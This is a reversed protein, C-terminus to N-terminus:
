GLEKGGDGVKAGARAGQKKSGGGVEAVVGAGQEEGSRKAEM